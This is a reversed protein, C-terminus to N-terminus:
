NIIFKRWVLPFFIEVFKENGVGRQNKKFTFFIKLNGSHQVKKNAFLFNLFLLLSFIIDFLYSEPIKSKKQVILIGCECPWMGNERDKERKYEFLQFIKKQLTQIACAKLRQRRREIDMERMGYESRKKACEFSETRTFNKNQLKIHYSFIDRM